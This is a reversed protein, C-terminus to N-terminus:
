VEDFAQFPCSSWRRQDTAHKNTGFRIYLHSGAKNTQIFRDTKWVPMRMHWRSNTTMANSLFSTAFNGRCISGTVNSASAPASGELKLMHSPSFNLKSSRHRKRRCNRARMSECLTPTSMFSRSAIHILPGHLEKATIGVDNLQNCYIRRQTQICVRCGLNERLQRGVGVYDGRACNKRVLDLSFPSRCKAHTRSARARECGWM